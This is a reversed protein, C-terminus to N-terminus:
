FLSLTISCSSIFLLCLESMLFVSTCKTYRNEQAFSRTFVQPYMQLLSCRLYCSPNVAFNESKYFVGNESVYALHKHIPHTYMSTIRPIATYLTLIYTPQSHIPHTYTSLAMFSSFIFTCLNQIRQDLEWSTRSHEFVDSGDM